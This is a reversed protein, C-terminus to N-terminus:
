EEDKPCGLLGIFEAVNNGGRHCDYCYFTNAKPTFTFSVPVDCFPCNGKYLSGCLELDCHKDIIAKLDDKIKTVSNDEYVRRNEAMRNHTKMYTKRMSNFESRSM